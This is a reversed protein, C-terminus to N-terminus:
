INFDKFLKAIRSLILQLTPKLDIAVPSPYIVKKVDYYIDYLATKTATYDSELKTYRKLWYDNNIFLFTTALLFLIIFLVMFIVAIM